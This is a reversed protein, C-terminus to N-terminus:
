FEFIVAVGILRSCRKKCVDNLRLGPENECPNLLCRTALCYVVYNIIKIRKHKMKKGSIM